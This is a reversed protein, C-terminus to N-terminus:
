STTFVICGPSPCVISRQLEWGDGAPAFVNLDYSRENAVWVQGDHVTLDRPWAGGTATEDIMTLRDAARDLAFTAFSDCGRNAVIVRDDLAVIASPYVRPDDGAGTSRVSGIGRWGSPQDGTRDRRALWLEASLECALVLHDGTVVLHRPGSGPPTIIPEREAIAGDPSVGLRHIRDTGLDPVLIDGADLDAVAMHAHSADQRDADPGSGTFAISSSVALLEGEPGLPVVSVLGVGYHAIVLFWGTPDLGLHCGGDGGTAVRSIQTLAGDGEIRHATVHTPTRESLGYVIPLTPHTLLYSPNEAPTASVATGDLTFSHIGVARPGGEATTFCGVRVIEHEAHAMTTTKRM